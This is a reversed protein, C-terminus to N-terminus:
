QFFLIFILFKFPCANDDWASLVPSPRTAQPSQTPYQCSPPRFHKVHKTDIRACRARQNLQCHFPCSSFVFPPLIEFCSYPNLPWISSLLFSMVCCRVVDLLDDFDLLGIVEQWLVIQIETQAGWPELAGPELAGPKIQHVPLNQQTENPM